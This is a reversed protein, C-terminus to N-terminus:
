TLNVKIEKEREDQKLLNLISHDLEMINEFKGSYSNKLTILEIMIDENNFTLNKM